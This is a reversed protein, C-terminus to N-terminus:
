REIARLISDAFSLGLYLNNNHIPFYNYYGGFPSYGFPHFGGGYVYTRNITTSPSAYL